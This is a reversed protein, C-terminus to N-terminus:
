QAVDGGEAAHGNAKGNSNASTGGARVHAIAMESVIPLLESVKEWARGRAMAEARDEETSESADDRRAVLLDSQQQLQKAQRELMKQQQELTREFANFISLLTGTMVKQQGEIHRLLTSVLANGSVQDAHQADESHAEAPSQQHIATALVDEDDDLVQIAVRVSEGLGDAYDAIASLILDVCDDGLESVPWTKIVHPKGLRDHQVRLSTAGHRSRGLWARLRNPTM